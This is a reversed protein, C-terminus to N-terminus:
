QITLTKFLGENNGTSLDRLGIELYYTSNPLLAKLEEEIEEAITEDIGEKKGVIRINTDLRKLRDLNTEIYAKLGVLDDDSKYAERIEENIQSNIGVNTQFYYIRGGEHRLPDEIGISQLYNITPSFEEYRAQLYLENFVSSVIREDRDIISLTDPNGKVDMAFYPDGYYQFYVRFEEEGTPYKRPNGITVIEVKDPDLKYRAVYRKVNEEIEERNRESWDGFGNNMWIVGVLMLLVLPIAGLIVRKKNKM